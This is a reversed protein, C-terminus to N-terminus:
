LFVCNCYSSSNVEQKEEETEEPPNLAKKTNRIDYILKHFIEDINIKEKASAEIYEIGWEKALEEADARDVERQNELDCKNGVLIMPIHESDDKENVRYVQEKISIVDSYSAKSTISFVLVYSEGSKISQDRISFFEEQGATDLISLAVNTGDVDIVTRYSDEITPDYIESFHNNVLLVTISSKGVAGGGLMVIKYKEMETKLTNNNNNNGQQM